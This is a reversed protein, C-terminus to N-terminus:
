RELRYVYLGSGRHERSIVHSGFRAKRLHRLQASASAEPAGTGQAIERLTHWQHDAMFRVIRMQQSTLRQHDEPELDPGDFLPSLPFLSVDGYPEDLALVRRPM